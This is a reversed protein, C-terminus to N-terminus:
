SSTYELNGTTFNISLTITPTSGTDGKDGKDGKLNASSSGSASTVTLTTGNWSHTCSVGNGGTDGKPGTAGTDGKDGKPGASGTAGTDGKPGQPGVDGKDGKEGQIGQPGTDGKDGKEGQIGQIGQPGTDGKEGQGGQLGNRVEFTNTEGNANTFTFVNIGGSGESITTQEGSKIYETPVKINVERNADKDLKQGNVNVGKITESKFVESNIVDSIKLGSQAMQQMYDEDVSAVNNAGSSHITQVLETSLNDETLNSLVFELEEKLRILYDVTQKSREEADKATINPSPLIDFM